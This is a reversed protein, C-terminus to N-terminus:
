ESDNIYAEALENTLTIFGNEIAKKFDIIVLASDEMLRQVEASAHAYYEAIQEYNFVIHRHAALQLFQRQEDTLSTCININEILSELKQKDFIQNIEPNEGRPEYVPSVIKRSYENSLENIVNAQDSDLQNLLDNLGYAAADFDCDELNSLELGLNEFNWTSDNQLKNDLIRYAKKQTDTLDAKRVIPVEALGLKKAAAFRGHGVIIINNEDVVIPQNFGFDAISNAIRDIQESGHDRSNLAYPIISNIDAKDIEM